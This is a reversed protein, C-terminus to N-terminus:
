SIVLYYIVKCNLTHITTDDKLIVSNDTLYFVKLTDYSKAEVKHSLQDDIAIQAAKAYICQNDRCTTCMLSNVTVIASNCLTQKDLFIHEIFNCVLLLLIQLM